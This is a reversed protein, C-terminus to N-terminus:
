RSGDFKALMEHANHKKNLINDSFKECAKWEDRINKKVVKIEERLQKLIEKSTDSSSKCAVYKEALQRAHGIKAVIEESVKSVYAILDDKREPLSKQIEEVVLTKNETVMREKVHYASVRKLNYTLGVRNLAWILWKTPDFHYWRIGNRYDNAFTHHYNHYGEGFTLLSIIYNDVATHEKSFTRAGWYHALSNIFWTSHHLMFLRTWWALVFAGLYDNFLWGVLLFMFVNSGVMCAAYHKHQFAVIPNKVLDPVVKKDIELPKNFLWLVHAHWFGDKVTYPDRDTDVYAHHLRHDFAWRLVSGQASMSGFFVLFWEVAPHAKYTTHAYYRHYGATISMGTLFFLVISVTIMGASPTCTSFYLFWGVVLLVHYTIIFIGPVKNFGRSLKM